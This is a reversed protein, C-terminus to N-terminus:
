RPPLLRKVERITTLAAALRDHDVAKAHAVDNRVRRLADLRRFPVGTTQAIWMLRDGEPPVRAIVAEWESLISAILVSTESTSWRSRSKAKAAQRRDSEERELVAVEFDRSMKADPVIWVTLRPRRGAGDRLRKAVQEAIGESGMASLTARVTAPASPSLYVVLGPPFRVKNTGWVHTASRAVRRAQRVVAGPTTGTISVYAMDVLEAARLAPLGLRPRPRM